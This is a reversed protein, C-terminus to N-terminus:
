GSKKVGGFLYWKDDGDVMLICNRVVMEVRATRQPRTV